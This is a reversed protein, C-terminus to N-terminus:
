AVENISGGKQRESGGERGEEREEERRGGPSRLASAISRYVSSFSPPRGTSAWITGLFSCTLSLPPPPLSPPLSSMLVKGVYM